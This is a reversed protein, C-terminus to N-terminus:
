RQRRMERRADREKIDRRKDHLKKGRCLGLLLKALGRENFYVELPVLTLGKQMVKAKLKRTEVKGLLLKRRRTPNHNQSAHNYADIHAGVLYVAQEDIRGFAEDLSINGARLSKVETGRLVLGTEFEELVEYLHRAKRNVTIMKRDTTRGTAKGAASAKGKKAM